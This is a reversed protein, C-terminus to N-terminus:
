FRYKLGVTVVRMLASSGAFDPYLDLNTKVSWHRDFRYDAGAGIVISTKSLTRSQPGITADLSTQAIGIQGSFDVNSMLEARVVASVSTAKSTWSIPRLGYVFDTRTGLGVHTLEVSRKRDFNYGLTFGTSRQDSTAASVGNQSSVGANVSVYPGIDSDLTSASASAAASILAAALITKLTTM